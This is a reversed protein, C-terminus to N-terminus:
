HDAGQYPEFHQNQQNFKFVNLHPVLSADYTPAVIEPMRDGDMDKAALNVAQGLLHYYADHRDTIKITDIIKRGQDEIPGYIEVLVADPTLVKVVRNVQNKGFLDVSLTSLVKREPPRFFFQLSQRAQGNLLFFFSAFFGLAALRGWWNIETIQMFFKRM